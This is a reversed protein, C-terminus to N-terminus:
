ASLEIQLYFAKPVRADRLRTRSGLRRSNKPCGSTFNHAARHSIIHSSQAKLSRHDDPGDVAAVEAAPILGALRYRLCHNDRRVGLGRDIQRRNPCLPAGGFYNRADPFLEDGDITRANPAANWSAQSPPPDSGRLM